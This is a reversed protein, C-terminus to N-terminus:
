VLGAELRIMKCITDREHEFYKYSQFYGSLSVIKASDFAPIQNYHFDPEKYVICQRITDQSIQNKSNASTFSYLTLLFNEWYTNREGLKKSYPFIFKHNHKMSYAITTFIQFLQNGLGGMLQGLIM